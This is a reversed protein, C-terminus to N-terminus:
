DYWLPISVYNRIFIINISCDELRVLTSNFRREAVYKVIALFKFFLTDCIYRAIKNYAATKVIGIGYLNNIKSQWKKLVLVCLM